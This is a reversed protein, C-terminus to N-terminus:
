NATQVDRKIRFLRDQWDAAKVFDQPTARCVHAQANGHWDLALVETGCIAPERGEVIWLHHYGAVQVHAEAYTRLGGLKLDGLVGGSGGCSCGPRRCERCYDVRGTVRLAPDELKVEAFLIRHDRRRRWAILGALYRRHTRDFEQPDPEDGRAWASLATHVKTGALQGSRRSAEMSLGKLGQSNAWRLLAEGPNVVDKAVTTVSRWGREEVTDATM